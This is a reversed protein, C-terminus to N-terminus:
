GEDIRSRVRALRADIAALERHRSALNQREGEVFHVYPGIGEEVRRVSRDLEAGFQTTLAGVLQQRLTALRSHLERRATKRRHPIVVFGVTALVGAALIGTVDAATSTALLGVATGLGVAGVEFLLMRIEEHDRTRRRVM